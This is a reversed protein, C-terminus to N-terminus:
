LAWEVPRKLRALLGRLGDFFSDAAANIGGTSNTSISTEIWVRAPNTGDAGLIDKFSDLESEGALLTSYQECTVNLLTQLMACSAPPMPQAGIVLTLIAYEPSGSVYTLRLATAQSQLTDLGDVKGLFWTYTRGGIAEFETLAANLETEMSEFTQLAVGDYGVLNPRGDTLITMICTPPATGTSGSSLLGRALLEGRFEKCRELADLVGHHIHSGGPTFSADMLTFLVSDSQAEAGVTPLSAAAPPILRGRYYPEFPDGSGDVAHGVPYTGSREPPGVPDCVPRELSGDGGLLWAGAHDGSTAEFCGPERLDPWCLPYGGPHCFVANDESAEGDGGPNVRRLCRPAYPEKCRPSDNATDTNFTNLQRPTFAPESMGCPVLNTPDGGLEQEYLACLAAGPEWGNKSLPGDNNRGPGSPNDPYATPDRPRYEYVFEIEKPLSTPARAGANSLVPLPITGFGLPQLPDNSMKQTVSDAVGPDWPAGDEMSQQPAPTINPAPPLFFAYPERRCTMTGGCESQTKSFSFRAGNPDEFTFHKLMKRYGTLSTNLAFPRTPARNVPHMFINKPSDFSFTQEVTAGFRPPAPNLTYNTLIDEDYRWVIQRGWNPGIEEFVQNPGPEQTLDSFNDFDAAPLPAGIAIIDIYQTLQALVGILIVAARKYQMFLDTLMYMASGVHTPLGGECGNEQGPLCTGQVTRVFNPWGLNLYNWGLWLRPAYGLIGFPIANQVVPLPTVNPYTGTGNPGVELAGGAGVQIVGFAKLLEDISRDDGLSRSYDLVASIFVRSPRTMSVAATSIGGLSQLLSSLRGQGMEQFAVVRPAGVTETDHNLIITRAGGDLVQGTEIPLAEPFGQVRAVMAMSNLAEPGTFEANFSGVAVLTMVNLQTRLKTINAQAYMLFLFGATLIPVILVATWLLVV